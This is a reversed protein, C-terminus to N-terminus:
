ISKSLKFNKALNKFDNVTLSEPRLDPNIKIKELDDKSFFDKLSNKLTKRRQEFAKKVLVSFLKEDHKSLSKNLFPKLRVIKSMVKPKPTFATPPVSFLDKVECHYQTMISLRGYSKSDPVATMRDVVEKQLMFHMDSIIPTGDKKMFKSSLFHFILQTSINYPLNGIVRIKQISENQFIDKSELKLIDNCIIIIRADKVYIKSLYSSLEKDIEVAYLKSNKDLKPIVQKTLAGLGPGIELFSDHKKIDVNFLIKEIISADKLFNQGFRKRPTHPM